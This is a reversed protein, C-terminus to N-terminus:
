PMWPHQVPLNPKGIKAHCSICHATAVNLAQSFGDLNHRAAAARLGAAPGHDFASALAQLDVPAGDAGKREPRAAIGERVHVLSSDVLDPVATWDNAKAKEWALVLGSDAQRMQVQTVTACGALVLLCSAPLFRRFSRANM